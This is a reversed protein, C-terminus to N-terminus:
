QDYGSSSSHRSASQRCSRTPADTTAPTSADGTRSGASCTRSRQKMSESPICWLRASTMQAGGDGSWDSARLYGFIHYRRQSKFVNSICSNVKSAHGTKSHPDNWDQRLVGHFIRTKNDDQSTREDCYKSQIVTGFDSTESVSRGYAL